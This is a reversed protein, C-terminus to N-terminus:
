EELGPAHPDSCRAEIAALVEEVEDAIARLGQAYQRFALRMVEDHPAAQQLAAELEANLRVTRACTASLSLTVGMAWAADQPNAGRSM